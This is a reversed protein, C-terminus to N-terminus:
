KARTKQGPKRQGRISHVSHGASQGTCQFFHEAADVAETWARGEDIWCKAAESLGAEGRKWWGRM